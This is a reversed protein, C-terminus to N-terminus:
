KVEMSIAIGISYLTNSFIGEIAVKCICITFHLSNINDTFAHRSEKYWVKDNVFINDNYTKRPQM